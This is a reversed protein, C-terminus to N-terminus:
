MKKKRQRQGWASLLTFEVGNLIGRVGGDPITLIILM